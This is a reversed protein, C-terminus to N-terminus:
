QQICHFCITQAQPMLSGFLSCEGVESLPLVSMRQVNMSQSLLSTSHQVYVAQRFHSILYRYLLPLPCLDFANSLGARHLAKKMSRWAEPQRAGWVQLISDTDNGMEGIGSYKGCVSAHTTMIVQERRQLTWQRGRPSTVKEGTELRWDGRGLVSVFCCLSKALTAWKRCRSEEGKPSRKM